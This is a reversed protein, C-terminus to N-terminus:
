NKTIEIFGLAISKQQGQRVHRMKHGEWTDTTEDEIKRCGSIKPLFYDTYMKEIKDWPGSIYIRKIGKNVQINQGNKLENKLDYQVRVLAYMDNDRAQIFTPQNDVNLKLDLAKQSDSVYTAAAAPDGGLLKDCQAFSDVPFLFVIFFLKKM